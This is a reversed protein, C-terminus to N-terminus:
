KNNVVLNISVSHQQMASTGTILLPYTGVPTNKSTYITLTSNLPNAGPNAPNQAFYCSSGKPLGSCTLNV